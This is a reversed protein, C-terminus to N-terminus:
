LDTTGQLNVVRNSGDEFVVRIERPSDALDVIRYGGERPAVRVSDIGFSHGRKRDIYVDGYHDRMRNRAESAAGNGWTYITFEGIGLGEKDTEGGHGYNEMMFGYEAPGFFPWVKEWLAKQQPNEPCYMMVFSAKMAAIGREFLDADGMERYYDLFLEAFLSQRADNWEGDCNMVGFGGLAPIYIFPPQWVQQTMSLEDLVRRGWDLYRAEGTVRHTALLAEATWFMSFTCQKYMANRAIRKGYYEGKGWGCCSWYTEFDEWRGSPVIEVLLADMARVAADHYKKEGTITALELLFTVSMSTEPSQALALSPALTEPHLWAPFFGQADQLTLLKDAFTGAYVLLRPDADLERYWRLMHLCTWSADLVHYWDPTVGREWPVRNSNTWHGSDWGKTRRVTKGDKEENFMEAAYVAPFIGDKMPAALSFEKTLMAKQELEANQTRRAYRLVGAAGRLSAFWAQNWISLNERWTPEDKYNPSQTVNVIFCPSGVKKGDIEFEQWVPNRWTDFAWRYTHEVFRDMPVVSPQGEALLPRGYREWLMRSVRGFPNRPVDDDAYALVYFGFEVRGPQLTMGPEKKYLVHTELETRTMGLTMRRNPADVDMFWPASEDRGCLDLDPVLILTAPGQSAILAPSRFVHQAICNGEAPALHPAWWFDPTFSLDFSISVEDQQVAKALDWTVRVRKWGEGADSIDVSSAATAAISPAKFRALESSGLTITCSEASQAINM